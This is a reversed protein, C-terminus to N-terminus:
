FLCVWFVFPFVCLQGSVRKELYDVTGAREVDDEYAEHNAEFQGKTEKTEKRPEERDPGAGAFPDLKWNAVPPM